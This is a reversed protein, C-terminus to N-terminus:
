KDDLIVWGGDYDFILKFRALLGAGVLPVAPVVGSVNEFTRSGIRVRNFTGSRVRHGTGLGSASVERGVQSGQTLIPDDVNDQSGTDILLERAVDQPGGAVSLHATIYPRNREIRIPIREGDHRFDARNFVSVRDQAFDITVVRGRFFDGGIIGAIPGVGSTMGSLDVLLTESCALPSGGIGLTVPTAAVNSSFTGGGGQRQVPPGARIGIREAVATDVVCPSAGTDLLFPMPAGDGIRVDLFPLGDRDDMALSQLPAPGASTSTACGAALLAPAVAVAVLRRRSV